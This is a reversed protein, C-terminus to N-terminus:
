SNSNIYDKIKNELEESLEPNDEVKMEQTYVELIKHKSEIISKLTPVAFEPTGMFIINLTM